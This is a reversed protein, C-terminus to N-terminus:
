RHDGIRNKAKQGINAAGLIPRLVAKASRSPPILVNALTRRGPWLRNIMSNYPDTCSDEWQRGEDAFCEMDRVELQYGPSSSAYREDYASKFCFVANGSILNCKTAVPRGSVELSRLQLCGRRAFDACVDRFFQAHEPKSAMATGSAAKWGSAELELFSDIAAPEDSREVVKVPAGTERELRRGLRSVERRVRGGLASGDGDRHLVAREFSNGIVPERHYASMVQNLASEVPGGTGLLDFALIRQRGAWRDLEDMLGELAVLPQDADLIPTGLYCYDHVWSRVVSPGMGRWLRNSYVPLAAKLNGNEVFVALYVTSSTLNRAAALVFGAEFFANPEAARNALDMWADILGGAELPLEVVTTQMCRPYWGM